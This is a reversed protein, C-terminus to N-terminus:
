LLLDTGKFTVYSLPKQGQFILIKNNESNLTITAQIKMKNRLIMKKRMRRKGKERKEKNEQLLFINKVFRRYIKIKLFRKSFTLM